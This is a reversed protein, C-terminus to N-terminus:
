ALAPTVLLRDDVQRVGPAAWAANEADMRETWSRVNGELTVKGDATDVIIREADLEANRKLAAEIKSKVEAPSIAPKVEILNLLGKVGALYRVAFEAALRQYNWDVVGTLTIWGGEVKVTIKKAPIEINWSLANVAAHAIDPDGHQHETTPRVHLEQVVARVGSVREVAREAASKQAFTEVTGSLTVVGGKVSVGIEAENIQPDWRLEEVVDRHLQLDTKM